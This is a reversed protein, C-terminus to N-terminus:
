LERNQRKNKVMYTKDHKQFYVVNMREMYDLIGDVGMSREMRGTFPEDPLSPDDYEFNVDYWRSLGALIMGLPENEFVLMGRVWALEKETDAQMEHLGDESVLVQWGPAIEVSEGQREVRVRGSLLTIRKEAEDRYNRVGFETGLVEVSFDGTKVIFPRKADKAVELYVEGDIEIERRDEAFKDPFRVGSASNLLIRTGDELTLRYEAGRGIDLRLMIPERVAEPHPIFTIGTDDAVMNLDGGSADYMEHIGGDGLSMIEREDIKLIGRQPVPRDGVFVEPGVSRPEGLLWGGAVIAVVCAAAAIRIRRRRKRKQAAIFKYTRGAAKEAISDGASDNAARYVVHCGAMVRDFLERHAPSELVWAELEKRETESCNDTYWAVIRDEAEDLNFQM